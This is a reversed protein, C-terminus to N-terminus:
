TASETTRAEEKSPPPLLDDVSLELDPFSVLALTEGRHHVTHRAYGDPGPEAFREICDEPLNQVWTEPVGARGYIHAKVDRDYDLSSDAVEIVLLVDAPTPHSTTYRDNRPRLLMADPQPESGDDLHIPNQIRIRFRGPTHEAFVDIYSDVSGAHGPGIPPMVIIDGEILEVREDPGLIGVEAMRYYEAVTFKRTERTPAPAAPAVGPSPQDAPTKAQTTMVVGPRESFTPGITSPISKPTFRFAALVIATQPTAGCLRLAYSSASLIVTFSQTEGTSSIRLIRNGQM